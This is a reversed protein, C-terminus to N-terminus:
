DDGRIVIAETALSTVPTEPQPEIFVAAIEPSVERVARSLRAIISDVETFPAEPRVGIRILAALGRDLPVLQCDALCEVSPDAIIAERVEAILTSSAAASM